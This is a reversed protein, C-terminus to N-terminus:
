KCEKYFNEILNNFKFLTDESIKESNEIISNTIFLEKINELKINTKESITKYYLNKDDTAVINYKTRIFEQLYKFRKLAIDNHNKSHLYLRAILENFELSTNSLPKIVPVIRQRRKGRFIMYILLAILTLYYASKFSKSKLIVQLPSTNEKTKIKFYEDWYTTENKLYSLSKFAYEYNNDILLNYNTFTLPETNIYIFGKGYKIKIFNITELNNHGLVISNITDFYTIYNKEFAKKYIYKQNKFIPNKLDVVLSDEFGYDFFTEFKLSDKFNSSFIAAAVFVTNGIKAYKLIKDLEIDTLEFNYNIFIFNTNVPRNVDFFESISLRNEELNNVDLQEELIDYLIYTGFPIKDEKSFTMTWDLEKPKYYEALVYIIIALVFFIIYAKNKKL